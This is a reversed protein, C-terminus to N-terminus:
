LLLGMSSARELLAPFEARAALLVHHQAVGLAARVGAAADPAARRIRLAIVRHISLLAFGQGM